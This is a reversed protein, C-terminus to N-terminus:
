HLVYLLANEQNVNAYTPLAFTIRFNSIIADTNHLKMNFIRFIDDQELVELYHNNTKKHKRTVCFAKCNGNKKKKRGLGRKPFVVLLIKVHKIMQGPFTYGLDSENMPCVVFTETFITIRSAHPVLCPKNMNVLMWLMRYSELFQLFSPLLNAPLHCFIWDEPPEFSLPISSILWFIQLFFFLHEFSSILQHEM